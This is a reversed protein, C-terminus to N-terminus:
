KHRRDRKRRRHQEIRHELDADLLERARMACEDVHGLIQQHMGAEVRQRESRMTSSTSSFTATSLRQELPELPQAAQSELDRKVIEDAQRLAIRQDLM